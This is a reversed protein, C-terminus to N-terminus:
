PEKHIQPGDAPAADDYLANGLLYRVTSAYWRTATNRRGSRKTPVEQQNLERAIDRLSWGAKRWAKVRQIIDQEETNPVLQNGELDYGYPTIGYAFRHSKKLAIDTKMRESPLQREMDALMSLTDLFVGGPETDTRLAQGGLDIIHFCIGRDQWASLYAAAEIPARFLRDFRWTVVHQVGGSGIIQLLDRGGLRQALPMSAVIREDKVTLIPDLSVARCYLLLHNEQIGPQYAEMASEM